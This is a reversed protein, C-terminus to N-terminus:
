LDEEVTRVIQRLWVLGVAQLALGLMLVARGAWSGTLWQWPEAGLLHGLGLGLLPLLGLLRASGRVAALEAALQDRAAQGEREAEALRGVAAALGAGSHEAVQWCAALGRLGARNRGVADARLADPVSAGVLLARRTRPCPDPVLGEAASELARAPPQGAALEAALGDLLAAVSEPREGRLRALRRAAFTGAVEGRQRWRGPAGSGSQRRLVEPVRGAWLGVSGGAAIAALLIWPTQSM